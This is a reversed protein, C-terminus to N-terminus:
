LRTNPQIQLPNSSSAQAMRSYWKNYTLIRVGHERSIDDKKKLLHASTRTSTEITEVEKIIEFMKLAFEDDEAEQELDSLDIQPDHQAAMKFLENRGAALGTIRIYDAISKRQQEQVAQCLLRVAKRINRRSTEIDSPSGDAIKQEFAAIETVIDHNSNTDRMMARIDDQSLAPSAFAPGMVRNILSDATASSIARERTFHVLKYLQLKTNATRADM